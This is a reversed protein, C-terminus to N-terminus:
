PAVDDLKSRVYVEFFSEAKSFDVGIHEELFVLFDEDFGKELRKKNAIDANGPCFAVLRNDKFQFNAGDGGFFLLREGEVEIKYSVKSMGWYIAQNSLQQIELGFVKIFV